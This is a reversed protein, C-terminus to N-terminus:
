ISIEKLKLEFLTGFKGDEIVSIMIDDWAIEMVKKANNDSLHIKIKLTPSKTKYFSVLAEKNNFPTTLHSSIEVNFDGDVLKTGTYALDSNDKEMGHLYAPTPLQIDDIRYSNSTIHGVYKIRYIGCAQGYFLHTALIFTLFTILKKM